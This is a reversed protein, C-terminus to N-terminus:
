NKIELVRKLLADLCSKAETNLEKFQLGIRYGRLNSEKEVPHQHVVRGNLILLDKGTLDPLSVEIEEYLVLPTEVIMSLGGVSINELMAKLESVRGYRIPIRRAVRSHKRISSGKSKLLFELLKLLTDQMSPEVLSFRVGHLLGQPSEEIRLIEAMVAIEMGGDFELFVEVVDGLDGIPEPLFFAAGGKSVDRLTGNVAGKPGSVRVEGAAQIRPHVRREEENM